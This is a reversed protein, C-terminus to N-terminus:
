PVGENRKTEVVSDSHQEDKNGNNENLLAARVGRM